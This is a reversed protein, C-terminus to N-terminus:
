KQTAKNRRATATSPTKVWQESFRTLYQRLSEGGSFGIVTQDCDLQKSIVHGADVDFKIAGTTLYHMIKIQLKPDNVPTLVETKVKITAVGASVRQLTYVKRTKLKVLRGDEARLKLESPSNWSGGVSVPTEPFPIIVAGFGMEVEASKSERKLVKGTPSILFKTLPVGITKAVPAFDQGPNKDTKSNYRAEPRDTLKRWMDVDNVSHIIAANGAADISEVNWVKTSVTRSKTEQSNGRITTKVTALHTVTWRLEQGKAFKHQLTYTATTARRKSKELQRQLDTKERGWAGQQVVVIVLLMAFLKKM